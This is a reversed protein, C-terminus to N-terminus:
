QRAHYYIVALTKPVSFISIEHLPRLPARMRARRIVEELTRGSAIVRGEVIAVQKGGYKRINILPIKPVKKSM